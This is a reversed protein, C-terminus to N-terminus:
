RLKNNIKLWLHSQWLLVHMEAAPATDVHNPWVHDAAIIDLMVDVTRPNTMIQSNTYYVLHARSDVM